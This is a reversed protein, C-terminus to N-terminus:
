PVSSYHKKSNNQKLVKISNTLELVKAKHTIDTRASDLVTANAEFFCREIDVERHLGARLSTSPSSTVILPFM